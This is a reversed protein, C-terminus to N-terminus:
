NERGRNMGAKIVKIENLGKETLHVKNMLNVVTVFSLFDQYKVGQIKNKELFPVIKSTIDALKTVVYDVVTGSVYIKGCGLYDM